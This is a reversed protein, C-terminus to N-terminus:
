GDFGEPVFGFVSVGLLQHWKKGDVFVLPEGFRRGHVGDHFHQGSQGQIEGFGVLRLLPLFTEHIEVVQLM